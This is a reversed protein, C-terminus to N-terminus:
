QCADRNGAQCAAVQRRWEALRREYDAQDREYGARDREYDARAQRHALAQTTYTDQAAAIADRDRWSSWGAAFGADRERVRALEAQNLQRTQERDLARAASSRMAPDKPDDARAPASLALVVAAM